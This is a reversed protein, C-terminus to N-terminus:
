TRAAGLAIDGHELFRNSFMIIPLKPYERQIYDVIIWGKTNRESEKVHMDGGWGLDIIALHYEGNRIKEEVQAAKNCVDVDFAADRLHNVMKRMFVFANIFGPSFSPYRKSIVDRVADDTISDEPIQDDAILIKM